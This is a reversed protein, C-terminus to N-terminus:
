RRLLGLYFHRKGASERLDDWEALIRVAENATRIAEREGAVAFEDRVRQAYVACVAGARRGFLSALTFITAAEMEINVVGAAQLDPIIGEMWSQWYGCCGRRGQGTYFSGTSATIGLHYRYGLSEAAEVLALVVEYHAVAPYEPRVYQSSAGDLRVAGLSIVLDGLEVDPRIAGTSGVRIFTGVGLRSLEDVAIAAAPGGIGTSTVMLDVGGYRGVYTVYERHRAALRREDWESAIKEAREVDGPLLAYKRVDEPRLAVHYMAGGKAHPEEASSFETGL